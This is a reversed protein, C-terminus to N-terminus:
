GKEQAVRIGANRKTRNHPRILIENVDVNAPQGIAYAMATMGDSLRLVRLRESDPLAAARHLKTLRGQLPLMQTGGTEVVSATAVDEIRGANNGLGAFLHAVQPDAFPDVDIWDAAAAGAAHTAGALNQVARFERQLSVKAAREIDHAIIGIAAQALEDGRWRAGDHPQRIVQAELRRRAKTVQARRIGCELLEVGSRAVRHQDIADAAHQTQVRSQNRERRQPAALLCPRM